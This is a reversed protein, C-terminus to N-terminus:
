YDAGESIYEIEGIANLIRIQGELWVIHDNEHWKIWHEYLNRTNDDLAQWAQACAKQFFPLLANELNLQNQLIAQVGVGGEKPAGITYAPTGGLFYIRDLIERRRDSCDDGFSEAKCKLTKVRLFKFTRADLRYQENLTAEMTAATQLNAIVQPDGKM